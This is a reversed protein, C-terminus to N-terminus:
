GSTRIGVVLHVTSDAPYRVEEEPNHQRCIIHKETRRVYEKVFATEENVQIIVLDEPKAPKRPHVWLLYGPRLAPFMSKDDVYVAYADPVGILMPPRETMELTEGNGPYWGIRGAKVFGLVKLNRPGVLEPEGAASRVGGQTASGLYQKAHSRTNIEVSPEESGKGSLWDLTVGYLESMKILKPQEPTTEDSEWQSVSNRSVGFQAGFAAQSLDGRLKKIRTGTSMGDKQFCPQVAELSSYSSQDPLM